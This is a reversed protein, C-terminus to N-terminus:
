VFDVMISNSVYMYKDPIKIRDAEKVLTGRAFNKNIAEGFVDFIDASFRDSFGTVSVGERIRLGLFMFESMMDDKSLKIKEAVKDKSDIYEQIDTLNSYRVGNICSYAGAGFGIFDHCLWYKKNHRSEFGSKAFNSIEYREFGNAKLNEVCSEYMEFSQDDDAVNLEMNYFPTGEEIKLAYCSIHKIDLAIAANISKIFSHKDQNPIGFMLDVSINDFGSKKADNVCKQTDEFSHIRGLIKLQENDASQMGISLRNVGANKLKLFGDKAITAPNCEISIECNRTLLFRRKITELVRIIQEPKLITPTGGGFYITDVQSAEFAEIEACLADIYRAQECESSVRSNFDCYNCKHRCFPIHVYIGRILNSCRCLRRRLCRM